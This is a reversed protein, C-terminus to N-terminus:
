HCAGAIGQQCDGADTLFNLRQSRSEVSNGGSVANQLAAGVISARRGLEKKVAGQVAGQVAAFPINEIAALISGLQTPSLSSLAGTNIAVLDIKPEPAFGPLPVLRTTSPPPNRSIFSASHDIGATISAKGDADFSLGLKFGGYVERFTELCGFTCGGEASNQTPYWFPSGSSDKVNEHQFSFMSILAASFDLRTGTEAYATASFTGLLLAKQPAAGTPDIDTMPNALSYGYGNWSQPDIPDVGANEPDASAFRGLVSGYYRAGFYDLGSESDREKSTFKQTVLDSAGWVSTRGGVGAAIEEGFPLYDHRSVVNDSQDTVLRTSGLHDWSLYCTTCPPVAPPASDYEAALEGAADYVYTTSAGNISRMVRKGDGDYSYTAQMGPNTNSVGIQRSEADYTMANVGFTTQNGSADYGANVTLQNNANYGNSGTPTLSSPTIGTAGTVWMNGYPDYGFSRSWNNDNAAILRNVGDYNYGTYTNIMISLNPGNNTGELVSQLNGNNSENQTANMGWFTQLDLLYNSQGSQTYKFESPQLRPNYSFVQGLGNGFSMQAFGGQPAYAIGAQGAPQGSQGSPGTVYTKGGGLLQFPRNAGDYKTTIVRGSPYTESTLSGALNYGYGFSYATGATSQTSATIRGLADYSYSASSTSTQELALRGIGDNGTDYTYSVAPTSALRNAQQIHTCDGTSGATDNGQLYVKQTIRNLGDYAYCVQQGRYDDRWMVNGDADYRYNVTGSEPNVAWALQKLSDYAFTRTRGSQNVGKLDDLPDYTYTTTYNLSNPDEVVRTLRGAGDETIVRVKGAEDTYTTQNANYATTRITGDQNTQSKVRNLGDYGYTTPYNLGDGSRSPNTTTLVRGRPDYTKTTAISSSGTEYQLSESLRGFGDYVSETHLARDGTANQDNYVNVDTPSSYVVNTEAEVSTRDARRTQTMRNLPDNYVWSTTIGNPDTFSTPKGVAYDNAITATQSLANKISTILSYHNGSDAYGYNTVNLKPDTVSLLNGAVDHTYQTTLWSGNGSNLWQQRSTLNGCVNSVACASATDYQVIGSETAPTSGDYGFKTDSFLDGSGDFVKTESPLNLINQSLHSTNFVTNTHRLISGAGGSGWDSEYTDTRNNYLDYAYSNQQVSGNETTTESILQPDHPPEYGNWQSALFWCTNDGTCSRQQWNNAVERLLTSGGADYYKVDQDKGDLYSNDLTPDFPIALTIPVNHAESGVINGASDYDTSTEGTGAYSTKKYYSGRADTSHLYERRENISRYLNYLM